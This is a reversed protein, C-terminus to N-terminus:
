KMTSADNKAIVSRDDDVIITCHSIAGLHPTGRLAALSGAPAFFL